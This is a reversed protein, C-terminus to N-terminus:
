VIDASSAGLVDDTFAYDNLPPLPGSTAGNFESEAVNPISFSSEFSLGADLGTHGPINGESIFVPPVVSEEELEDELSGDDQSYQKKHKRNRIASNMENKNGNLKAFLIRLVLEKDEWTLDRM